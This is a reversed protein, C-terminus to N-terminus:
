CAREREYQELSMAEQQPSSIAQQMALSDELDDLKDRLAEYERYQVLVAKPKGHHTVFVPDSGAELQALFSALGAKLETVTVINNAM